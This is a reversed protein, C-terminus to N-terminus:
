LSDSTVSCSESEGEYVCLKIQFYFDYKYKREDATKDTKGFDNVCRNETRYDEHRFLIGLRKLFFM